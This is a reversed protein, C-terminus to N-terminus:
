LKGNPLERIFMGVTQKKSDKKDIQRNFKDFLCQQLKAIDPLYQTARLETEQLIMLSLALM